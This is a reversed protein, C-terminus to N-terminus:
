MGSGVGQMHQMQQMMSFFSAGYIAVFLLVIGILIAILILSAKAWNKKCIPTESSFAWYFLIIISLFPVLNSVFLILYTILWQKTSLSGKPVIERTQNQDNM